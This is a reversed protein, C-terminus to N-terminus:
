PCAGGRGRLGDLAGRLMLKLRTLRRNGRLTYIAIYPVVRSVFYLRWASQVYGRRALILANRIWYYNRVPAHLSISRSGVQIRGAGLTHDMVCADTQFHRYGKSAARFGWELDVLDIFLPEDMLGVARLTDLPLLSGSAIVFDVETQKSAPSTPRQRVIRWGRARWSAGIRGDHTDRYACGVSGLRVGADRLDRMAASLHGVADAPLLTDQDMLLVAEAGERQALRIGENQAAAIGRNEPLGIFVAGLAEVRARIASAAHSGNDVVVLREVQASVRAAGEDFRALDPNFTVIVGFIGRGQSAAVSDSSSLM